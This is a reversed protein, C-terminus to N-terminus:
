RNQNDSNSKQTTQSNLEEHKILKSVVWGLCWVPALFWAYGILIVIDCPVAGILLICMLGLEIKNEKPITRILDLIVGALPLWPKKKKM